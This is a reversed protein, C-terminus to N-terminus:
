KYQKRKYLEHKGGVKENNHYMIERIKEVAKAKIQSIRGLSIGMIEQIEKPDKEEFFLYNIVKKENEDLYQEIIQSIKEIQEKLAYEEEPTKSNSVISDILSISDDEISIIKDLSLIVATNSYPLNDDPEAKEVTIYDKETHPFVELSRLFDLIEGRIRIYAYTSFKGKDQHYNETAKILGIVGVQFLDDFDISCDPLRYYIKSAVKKVLNLNEEVLRKKEKDLKM